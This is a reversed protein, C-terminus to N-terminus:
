HEALGGPWIVDIQYIDLKPSKAEFFQLFLGLKDTSLDPTDLINIKINPHEAEYRAVQSILVDHEVGVNSTAIGLTIVGGDPQAAKAASFQMLAALLVILTSYRGTKKM